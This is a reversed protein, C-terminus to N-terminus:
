VVVVVVQMSLSAQFQGLLSEGRKDLKQWKAWSFCTAKHSLWFRNIFALVYKENLTSHIQALSTM